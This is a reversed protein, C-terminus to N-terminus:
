TNCLSERNSRIQETSRTKERELEEEKGKVELQLSEM